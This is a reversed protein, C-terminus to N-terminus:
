SVGIRNCSTVDAAILEPGVTPPLPQFPSRAPQASSTTSSASHAAAPRSRALALMAPSVDCGTVRGSPGLRAAARRTVTGPGCAVDLLVEGAQLGVQDLLLDAWPQFLRPVM